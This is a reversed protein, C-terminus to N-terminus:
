APGNGADATVNPTPTPAPPAPASGAPRGRALTAELVSSFDEESRGQAIAEDLLRRAERSMRLPRGARASAREILRLDKRALATSFQVPYRRELFGPAKRELMTSRAGSALLLQVARPLDLGLGQALALAETALATNGITLLNNVLKMAAGSGVPGVVEVARGMRELMPRVRAIDSAEGGVFFTLEARSALDTSGGVPADVYHLGSEALRAAFARSEDPDVTGMNVVLAGPPAARAYGSRGFLVSRIAKGDTLMFFAVGKGVSKALDRPKAVWRAGNAALAEAKSQTRDYVVVPMGSELLRRVMPIGMRGLGAFGVVPSVAPGPTPSPPAHETGSM